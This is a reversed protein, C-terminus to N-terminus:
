KASSLVLASGTDQDQRHSGGYTLLTNNRCEEVFRGSEPVLHFVRDVNLSPIDEHSMILITKRMRCENLVVALTSRAEDDLNSWPEDLVMIASDRLLVRAISIRQREGGSLGKGRPDLRCDLGGPLRKMLTELQARRLADVIRDDSANADAIQINDRLTETFIFHDQLVVGITRRLEARSIMDTPIGGLLIKGRQPSYFRLLLNILTSKGSGSPGHILTIGNAPIFLDAERFLLRGENYGFTLGTLEIAVSEAPVPVSIEKQDEDEVPEDLFQAINQLGVFQPQFTALAYVLSSVAMQLFSAYFFFLLFIDSTLSGGALLRYALVILLLGGLKSLLDVSSSLTAGFRSAKVSVDRFERALGEFRRSRRDESALTKLTDIGQITEDLLTNITGYQARQTRAFREMVFHLGATLAGTVSVIVLTAGTLILPCSSLLIVMVVVAILADRVVSPIFNALFRQAQSTDASFKTFLEGASQKHMKLLPQRSIKEFFDVQLERQLDSSFSAAFYGGLAQLLASTIYILTLYGLIRLGDTMPFTGYHSVVLSVIRQFFWPQLSGLGVSAM